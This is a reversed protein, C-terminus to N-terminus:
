IRFRFTANPYGLCHSPVAAPRRVHVFLRIAPYEDTGLAGAIPAAGASPPMMGAPTVSAGRFLPIAEAGIFILIGCVAVVVSIGGLTIIGVAARDIRKLRAIRRTAEAMQRRVQSTNALTTM